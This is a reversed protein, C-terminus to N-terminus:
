AEAEVVELDMEAEAEVVELDMEAAKRVAMQGMGKVQWAAMALCRCPSRTNLGRTWCDTSYFKRRRSM